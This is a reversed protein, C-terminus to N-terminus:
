HSSHQIHFTTRNGDVNPVPAVRNWYDVFGKSATVGEFVSDPTGVLHCSVVLTGDSGDSYHVQVILLGGRNDALNGITDHPLPPTGPALTYSVFGSVSYSGSGTVTTGNPAYTTWTGGGGVAQPRGPNSHFTGAGTLTIKSNDNALASAQGGASLTGTGFNVSIIDWRMTANGPGGAAQGVFWALLVAALGVGLLATAAIRWRQKTM